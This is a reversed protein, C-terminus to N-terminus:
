HGHARIEEQIQKLDKWSIKKDKLTHSLAMKKYLEVPMVVIRKGKDSPSVNIEGKIVRKLLKVKGRIEEVYLFNEKQEGKTNCKEEMFRKYTDMWINRRVEMHTEEM